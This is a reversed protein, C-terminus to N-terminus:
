MNLSLKNQILVSFLSVPLGLITGSSFDWVKCNFFGGGGFVLWGFFGDCFLFGEVM